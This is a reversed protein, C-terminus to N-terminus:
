GSPEPIPKIEIEQQQKFHMALYFLAAIIGVLASIHWMWRPDYHDMILGSLYMGVAGPVMWAFGFFAMYRGRMHEPSLRAAIAQGVPVTLMEGITVVAMAVMFLMYTSVFGYMGFGVVLFLTGLSLIIFPPYAEVRRTIAFQFLVVMAANLSLIWGFSQEPLGHVDRLFVALPGQFQSIVLVMLMTAILFFMFFRDTLVHGYGKFTETMTEEPEGEVHQPKTEPLLIYFVLATILSLLTDLIFLYLYSHTALLGGLVPGIVFALNNIVRHLGFGGARKEEPLIDAVMAGRAPAGINGTLGALMVLPVFVGLQKVFGLMLVSLASAVLGFIVMSKRGFRDTLGGGITSGIIGTITLSAFILGVESLGIGFARTVYLAFFPFLLAGGLADVFSTGMLYWFARPYENYTAKVGRLAKQLMLNVM